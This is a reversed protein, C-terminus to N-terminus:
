KLININLNPYNDVLEKYSNAISSGGSTYFLYIEKNELDYKDLFSLIIRPALSWWIPYGLYVKHYKSLDINIEKFDVRNSKNQMELTTRSTKNMWDLDESSYAEVPEIQLIDCNFKKSLDMAKAKTVGTASFCIVISNM